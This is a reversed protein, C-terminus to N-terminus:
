DCEKFNSAQCKRQMAQSQSAQAARDSGFNPVNTTMKKTRRRELKSRRRLPPRRALRKHFARALIAIQLRYNWPCRFELACFLVPIKIILFSTGPTLYSSALGLRQSPLPAPRM